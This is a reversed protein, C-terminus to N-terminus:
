VHTLLSLFYILVNSHVGLALVVSCLIVELYNSLCKPIKETGWLMMIFGLSQQGTWRHSCQDTSLSNGEPFVLKSESHSSQSDAVLCLSILIGAWALVGASGMLSRFVDSLILANLRELEGLGQTYICSPWGCPLESLLGVEWGM